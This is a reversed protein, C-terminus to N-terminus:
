LSSGLIVLLKKLAKAKIRKMPKNNIRSIPIQKIEKHTFVTVEIDIKKYIFTLGKFSKTTQHGTKLQREYLKHAILQDDLQSMVEEINEASLHINIPSGATATGNAVPGVLFSQFNSFFEMVSLAIKRLKFLSVHHSEGDFLRHYEKLKDEIESNRPLCGLNQFNLNEAAKHKATHYKEIGQEVMIRATEQAIMKKIQSKTKLQM